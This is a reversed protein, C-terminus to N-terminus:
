SLDFAIDCRSKVSQANFYARELPIWKSTFDSLKSEGRSSFIRHQQEIDNISLFVSIDYLGILKEHCAYTGEIILIDNKPIAITAGFEMKACDFRRYEFSDHLSIHPAVEDSFREHDINGGPTAYRESTRQFTRLFFDDMHVIPANLKESIIDAITTKGVAAYGDIALSTRKDSLSREKIMSILINATDRSTM